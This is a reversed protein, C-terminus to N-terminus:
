SPPLIDFVGVVKGAPMCAQCTNELIWMVSIVPTDISGALFIMEFM